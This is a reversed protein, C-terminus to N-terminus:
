AKLVLHCLQQLDRFLDEPIERDLSVGAKIELTGDKYKRNITYIVKAFIPEELKQDHISKIWLHDNKLLMDEEDANKILIGMGRASIDVLSVDLSLCGGRKEVRHIGTFVPSNFPMVYRETDRIVLGKAVTPMKGRITSGEISYQRSEFQFNVNRYNLKISIPREQELSVEEFLKITVSDDEINISKIATIINTAPTPQAIKGGFLSAKELLSPIEHSNIIKLLSHDM